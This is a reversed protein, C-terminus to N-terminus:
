QWGGEDRQNPDVRNPEQMFPDNQSNLGHSLPNMPQHINSSIMEDQDRNSNRHSHNQPEPHPHHNLFMLTIMPYALLLISMIFAFIFLSIRISGFLFLLGYLFSGLICGAAFAREMISRALAHKDERIMQKYYELFRFDHLGLGMGMLLVSFVFVKATPSIALLLLALVQLVASINVRGQMTIRDPFITLLTRILVHSAFSFLMYYFAVTALSLNLSLLFHPTFIFFFAVQIGSTMIVSWVFTGSKKNSLAYLFSPLHLPPNASPPCHQVFLLAQVGVILLIAACLMFVALLGFREYVIGAMVAGVSAGLIYGTYQTTHITNESFEPYGLRSAYIRYERQFYFVMGLCFGIPLLFLLFLFVHVFISSILLLTFAAFIFLILAIRTTFRRVFYVRLFSFGFFGASFLVGGLLIYFQVPIYASVKASKAADLLFASIILPPMTCAMASFFSVSHCGSLGYRIIKPLQRDPQRFVITLLRNTQYYIITLAVAISIMTFVWSLSIGNQTTHFVSSPVLIELLGSVTGEAGIIPAVGAVYRGHSDAREVVFAKQKTYAEWYEDNEGELTEQELDNGKTPSSTYVRILDKGAKTYINVIRGNVPIPYSMGDQLTMHSITLASAVSESLLADARDREIVATYSSTITNSIVLLIVLIVTFCFGLQAALSSKESPPSIFSSLLFNRM